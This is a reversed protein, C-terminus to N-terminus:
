GDMYKRNVCSTCIDRWNEKAYYKNDIVAEKMFRDACDVVISCDMLDIKTNVLPCLVTDPYDNNGYGMNKLVEIMKLINQDFQEKKFATRIINNKTDVYVVGDMSFYHIREGKWAVASLKAKKIFEKAEKESVNHLREKNIHGNDFSLSDINIKPPAFSLEGKIKTVNKIETIIKDYEQKIIGSDDNNNLANKEINETTTGRNKKDILAVFDCRCYSHMPPFNTGACRDKIRFIKGNLANCDSCVNSDGRTIYKYDTYNPDNEFPTIQSECMIFTGETYVLRKIDNKSVNEFRKSLEKVCKEYSDGRAMAVSFDHSLYNALKKRNDWIRDSFNKGNCWRANITKELVDHRITGLTAGLDKVTSMYGNKYLEELHRKVAIQENAGIEMQAIFISHKMGELRNLKYISKRVPMLYAYEPYKKAFEDCRELLMKKDTDSLKLMLNRYEIVNNKGYTQYYYSVDKELNKVHKQYEIFLKKHLNEEDKELQALLIDKRQAWYDENNM